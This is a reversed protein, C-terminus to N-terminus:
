QNAGQVEWLVVHLAHLTMGTLIMMLGVLCFATSAIYTGSFLAMRTIRLYVAWGCWLLGVGLAAIGPLGFALLAWKVGSSQVPPDGFGPDGMPVEASSEIELSLRGVTNLVVSCLICMMGALCLSVSAITRGVSAVRVVLLRDRALVAGLALGAVLMVFGPLGITFIPYRQGILRVLRNM